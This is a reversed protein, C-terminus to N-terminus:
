FNKLNTKLNVVNLKANKTPMADGTRLAQLRLLLPPFHPEPCDFHYLAQQLVVLQAAWRDVPECFAVCPM